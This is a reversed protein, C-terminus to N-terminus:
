GSLTDTMEDTQSFELEASLALGNLLSALSYLSTKLPQGLLAPPRSMADMGKPGALQAVRFLM